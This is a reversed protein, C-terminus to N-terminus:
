SNNNLLFDIAERVTPIYTEGNRSYIKDNRMEDLGSGSFLLGDKDGRRAKTLWHAICYPTKRNFFACNKTVICSICRKRTEEAVKAAEELFGNDIYRSPLSAPSTMKTVIQYDPNLYFEKLIEDSMGSEQTLLIRTGSSVGNFGQELAAEIDKKYIIGGALIIPIEPDLARIGDYIDSPKFKSQDNAEEANSAGLHGGAFQPLELYWADPKRGKRLRARKLIIQAARASSVIPAYRMHPYKLMTNPLDMPLGAGVLLIDVAKSEGTVKVLLDYNDVARMLNVGLIGFPSNERVKKIKRKLAEEDAKDRIQRREEMKMKEFKEKYIENYGILSGALVGIGGANIVASALDENSFDIGMGGNMIPFLIRSSFIAELYDNKEEISAFIPALLNEKKFNSKNM